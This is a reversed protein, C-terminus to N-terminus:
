RVGYLIFATGTDYNGSSLTLTISTIAATSRWNVTFLRSHINGSTQATVHTGIPSIATKFFTGRYFPVIIEGAGAYNAPASAGSVVAIIGSTTGVQEAFSGSTTFDSRQGDYNSGTDGNFTLNIGTSTAAQTSRAQYVIRLHTFSGLSSFTVAGTSTPTQTEIPIWGPPTVSTLHQAGTPSAPLAFLITAAIPVTLWLLPKSRLAHKM